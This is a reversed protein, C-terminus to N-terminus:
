RVWEYEDDEWGADRDDDSLLDNVEDESLVERPDQMARMICARGNGGPRRSTPGFSHRHVARHRASPSPAPCGPHRTIQAQVLDDVM